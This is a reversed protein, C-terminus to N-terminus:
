VQPMIVAPHKITICFDFPASSNVLDNLNTGQPATIGNRQVSYITNGIIQVNDTGTGINSIQIGAHGQINYIECNEIRVNNLSQLFIGSNGQGTDHIKCNRIM